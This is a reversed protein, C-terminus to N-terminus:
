DPLPLSLGESLGGDESEGNAAEGGGDAGEKARQRSEAALIVKQLLAEFRISGQTYAIEEGPALMEIDGGPSIKLYKGGALGDSLIQVSSDVPVEIGERIRLIVVARNTETDLYQKEVRGVPIGTLVVDTGPVVGDIEQFRATLRYGDANVAGPQGSRYSLVLISAGVLVVLAGVIM